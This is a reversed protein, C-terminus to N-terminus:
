TRPLNRFTPVRKMRAMILMGRIGIGMTQKLKRWFPVNGGEGKPIASGCQTSHPYHVHLPIKGFGDIREFKMTSKLAGYRTLEAFAEHTMLLYEHEEISNKLLRHALVVDPGSVKSFGAVTHFLAKGVHTIMKLKLESAGACAECRCMNSRLLEDLRRYFVEFFDPLKRSISSVTEDWTYSGPEEVGTFFVADGEIEILHLPIQIEGIVSEMLETIIVQAHALSTRKRTIFKTYGSIDAMLVVVKRTQSNMAIGRAATTVRDFVATLGM